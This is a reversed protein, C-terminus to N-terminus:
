QEDWHQSVPLIRWDTEYIRQHLELEVIAALISQQREADSETIVQFPWYGTASGSLHPHLFNQSYNVIIRVPELPKNRGYTVQAEKQEPWSLEFHTELGGAGDDMPGRVQIEGTGELFLANAEELIARVIPTILEIGRRYITEKASRSKAGEYTGTRLDRLHRILDDARIATAKPQNLACREQEKEILYM